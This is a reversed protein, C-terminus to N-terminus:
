GGHRAVIGVYCAKMVNSQLFVPLFNLVGLKESGAKFRAKKLVDQAAGM